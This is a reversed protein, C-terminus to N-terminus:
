PEQAADERNQEEHMRRTADETRQKEAKSTRNNVIAWILVIGLVIPGVITMVGWLSGGTDIM